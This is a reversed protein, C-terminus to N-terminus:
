TGLFSSAPGSAKDRRGSRRGAESRSLSPTVKSGGDSKTRIISVARVSRIWDDEASLGRM